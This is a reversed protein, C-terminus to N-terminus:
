IQRSNIYFNFMAKMLLITKRRVKEAFWPKEKTKLNSNNIKKRCMKEAFKQVNKNKFSEWKTVSRYVNRKGLWQHASKAFFVKM